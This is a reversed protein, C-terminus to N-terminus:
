PIPLLYEQVVIQCPDITAKYVNLVERYLEVLTATLCDFKVSAITKIYPEETQIM